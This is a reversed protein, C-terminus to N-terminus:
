RLEERSARSSAFLSVDFLSPSLVDDLLEEFDSLLEEFASLPDLVDVVEVLLVGAAVGDVDELSV